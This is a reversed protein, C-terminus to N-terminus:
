ESRRKVYFIVGNPTNQLVQVCESPKCGTEALFAELIEERQAYVRDLASQVFETIALKPEEDIGDIHMSM